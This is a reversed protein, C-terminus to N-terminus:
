KAQLLANKVADMVADSTATAGTVADVDLAQREVIRAPIVTLSDLARSENESVVQVSTIRGDRVAAKM